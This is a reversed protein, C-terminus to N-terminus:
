ALNLRDNFLLLIKASKKMCSGRSCCYLLFSKQLCYIFEVSFFTEDGIRGTGNRGKQLVIQFMQVVKLSVRIWIKSIHKIKWVIFKQHIRQFTVWPSSRISLISLPVTLACLRFDCGWICHFLFTFPCSSYPHFFPEQRVMDFHKELWFQNEVFIIKGLSNVSVQFSKIKWM